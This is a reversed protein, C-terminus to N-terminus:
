RGFSCDVAWVYREPLGASRLHALSLATAALNYRDVTNICELVLGSLVGSRRRAEVADLNLGPADPPRVTAAKFEALRAAYAVVAARRQEVLSSQLELSQQGATAAASGRRIQGPSGGFLAASMTQVVFAGAAVSLSILVLCVILGLGVAVLPRSHAPAGPRWDRVGIGAPPAPRKRAESTVNFGERGPGGIM